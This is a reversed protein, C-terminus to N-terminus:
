RSRRALGDAFAKLHAPVNIGQPCAKVCQGCGVCASPQKDAPLAEIREAESSSLRFANYAALLMPIDLGAPCGDVCYRCATCPVTNKMREALSLLAEREAPTLPQPHSFTEINERLQEMNSMGSLLGMLFKGGSLLLNVAIGTVAALTGYAARVDPDDVRDAERIFRRILWATM